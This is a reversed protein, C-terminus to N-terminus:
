ISVGDSYFHKSVGHRIEGLSSPHTLLDAVTDVKAVNDVDAFRIGSVEDKAGADFAKTDPLTFSLM